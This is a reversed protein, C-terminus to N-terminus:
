ATFVSEVTRAKPQNVYDQENLKSLIDQRKMKAETYTKGYVSRYKVCGNEDHSAIYRPEWRSDKRKYINEGKRAM